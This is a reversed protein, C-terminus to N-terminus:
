EPPVLPYLLTRAVMEAAQEPSVLTSDVMIATSPPEFNLFISEVKEEPVPNPRAKNRRLATGLDCVVHVFDVTSYHGALASLAAERRRPSAFAGDLIVLYGEDLASRAMETCVGYVFESEEASFTPHAILARVMDTQIHVARTDAKAVIGAITSKGSGPIGCFILLRGPM